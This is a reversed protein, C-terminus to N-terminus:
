INYFLANLNNKLKFGIFENDLLNINEILNNKYKVPYCVEINIKKDNIDIVKGIILNYNNKDNYVIYDNIVIDNNFQDKVFLPTKM